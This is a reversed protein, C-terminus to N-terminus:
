GLIFYRIEQLYPLEELLPVGEKKSNCFIQSWKCCQKSWRQALSMSFIFRCSLLRIKCLIQRLKTHLNTKADPAMNLPFISNVKSASYSGRFMDWILIVSLFAIFLLVNLVQCVMRTWDLQDDFSYKRLFIKLVCHMLLSVIGTVLVRIGIM